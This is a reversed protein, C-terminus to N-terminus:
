RSGRHEDVFRIDAPYRPSAALAEAVGRTVARRLRRLRELGLALWGAGVGSSSSALLVVLREVTGRSVVPSHGARRMCRRATVALTRGGIPPPEDAGALSLLRCVSLRGRSWSRCRLCLVLLAAGTCTAVHRPDDLSLLRPGGRDGVVLAQLGGRSCTRSAHRDDIM